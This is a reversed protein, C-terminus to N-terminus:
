SAAVRNRHDIWAKCCQSLLRSHAIRVDAFRGCGFASAIFKSALKRTESTPGNSEETEDHEISWIAVQANDRVIWTVFNRNELDYGFVKGDVAGQNLHLKGDYITKIANMM